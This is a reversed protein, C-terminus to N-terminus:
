DGHLTVMKKIINNILFNHVSFSLHIVCLYEILRIEQVNWLITTLNIKSAIKLIMDPSRYSSNFAYECRWKSNQEYETMNEAPITLTYTSESSCGYTYRPNASQNACKDNVQYLVACLNNENRLFKIANTYKSVFQSTDCTWTFAEGLVAFESSGRLNYQQGSFFIIIKNWYQTLFYFMESELYCLIFSNFIILLKTLIKYM